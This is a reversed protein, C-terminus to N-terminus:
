GVISNFISLSQSSLRIFSKVRFPNRYFESIIDPMEEITAIYGSKDKIIERAIPIDNM